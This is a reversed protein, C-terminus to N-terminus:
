VAKKLMRELTTRIRAPTTKELQISDCENFQAFSGLKTSLAPLLEGFDEFGPELLLNHIVLTKSKRDAAPDLKGVLDEGWLIPLVFFGYKRKSAPMYCELAYDFGFLRKTRERQAVLSDFPSLLYVRPRQAKLKSSREMTETLAYYDGDSDNELGVKTAEGADVLEAVAKSIVDKGVAQYHSDRAAEPQMHVRIEKENAVGYAGLARRVLFRGVEDDSPYRTDVSDPLVRETLDYTREADRRETVMVDGKGLLMDLAFKTPNPLGTASRRKAKAPALDELGLPGEARIRQLIPKMLHGCEKAVRRTWETKPDDFNRMRPLYFRYDSMPVYSLARAWYEFVRRDQAQLQRLMVPDYDPRRTWLAHHHARQIVSITDIQVYGLREIIEAAGEKGRPLKARGDLLQARLAIKRALALRIRPTTM